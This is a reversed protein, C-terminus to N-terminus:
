GPWKPEDEPGKAPSKPGIRQEFFAKVGQGVEEKFIVEGQQVGSKALLVKGRDATQAM